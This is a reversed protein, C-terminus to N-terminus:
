DDVVKTRLKRTSELLDQFEKLRAEEDKIVQRQQGRGIRNAEIDQKLEVMDEQLGVSDQGMKEYEKMTKELVKEQEEIALELEYMRVERPLEELVLQAAKMEDPYRDQNIFTENGLSMVLVVKGMPQEKSGVEEVQYYLDLTKGAIDRYVVTPVIRFGKYNKAKGNTEMLIKQEVVHEINKAKGPISITVADVVGMKPLDVSTIDAEQAKLGSFVSLLAMLLFPIKAYM